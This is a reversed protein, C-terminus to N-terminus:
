LWGISAPGKHGKTFIFWAFPVASSAKPGAWQDRHMMPLRKSFVLVRSLPLTEFMSRRAQSELWGLRRLLAIKETALECAKTAFEAALSFPPNTIVNPALAINQSLFDVGPRGYGRDCIDTSVVNHGLAVLVKSLAGDGCAPEWISGTFPEATMLAQTAIAPTRYFDRSRPPLMPNGAGLMLLPTSM